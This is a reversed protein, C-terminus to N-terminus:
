WETWNSASSKSESNYVQKKVQRPFVPSMDKIRALADSMDDHRARPFSAFEGDVLEKILDFLRGESDRYQLAAPFYWLGRQMDPILRRIREEKMMSGGLEIIPFRYNEDTQHKKIYHLDGQMGYKEYGVKPPKGGLENWKRHLVFLMEVRETPNLRDRVIDLLYYNNDTGLGVVVFATWDSTKKKKKNLEDGGSPDCMIYINMTKPKAQTYYQLWEPKFEGGGLPIPEQLYQGAFNYEGLDIRLEDLDKKSLRPTLMEGEKMVWTRKGLTITIDQHAMAPIKLLRYRQDGLLDGTPDAEHLRQMIMIFRADRRDNFRSFLTSRIEEIASKRITDSAAEKPNVPDDVILTKCGFGTITGGIGTGKYQGGKTTTFFDKTNQDPSLKTDPFVRQYWASQLLRRCAMVNREALTHAYSACIIQHHPEKGLLWAAYIQAVLVSKLARPPINIIQWPEDGRYSAELHAAICEIHWSWEYKTGPELISFARMAFTDFDERAAHLLLESPNM